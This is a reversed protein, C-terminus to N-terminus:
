RRFVKWKDRALFSFSSFMTFTNMILKFIVANADRTTSIIISGLLIELVLDPSIFRESDILICWIVNTTTIYIKNPTVPPAKSLCILCYKVSVGLYTITDFYMMIILQVKARIICTRWIVISSINVGSINYSINLMIETSINTFRISIM